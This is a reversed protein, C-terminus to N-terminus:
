VSTGHPGGRADVAPNSRAPGAYRPGIPLAMRGTRRHRSGPRTYEPLVAPGRAPPARSRRAPFRTRHRRSSSRGHGPADDGGLSERLAPGEILVHLVGATGLVQRALGEAAVEGVAARHAGRALVVAADQALAVLPQPEGRILDLGDPPEARLRVSRGLDEHDRLVPRRVAPPVQGGGRPGGW